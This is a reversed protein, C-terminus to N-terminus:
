EVMYSPASMRIEIRKTPIQGPFIGRWTLYATRQEVFLEVTDLNMPGPIIRGDEFEILTIMEIEPLGCRLRRSADLNVLEFVENGKLFGPFRLDPPATNYYEFSFDEPLYPACNSKWDTDLTGCHQLRQSWSAAIPGLGITEISKGLVLSQVGLPLIQPYEASNRKPNAAYGKGIPNELCVDDYFQANRGGFAQEYRIDLSDIPEIESLKSVGFRTEWRRPGTVLFSKKQKGISVSSVWEKEKVSNPSYATAEILFDTKPKYPALCSERKLSSTSPEGYYSDDFELSEQDRKLQLRRDPTIEFTGQLVLVGFLNRKTDMAEFQLPVFPTSNIIQISANTAM